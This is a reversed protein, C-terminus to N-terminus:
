GAGCPRTMSTLGISLLSHLTQTCISQMLYRPVSVHHHNAPCLLAQTRVGRCPILPAFEQRESVKGNDQDRNAADHHSHHNSPYGLDGIIDDGLEHTQGLTVLLYQRGMSGRAIKNAKKKHSLNLAIAKADVRTVPIM